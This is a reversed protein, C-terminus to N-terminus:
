NSKQKVTTSRTDVKHDSLVALRAILVCMARTCVLLTEDRVAKTAALAMTV